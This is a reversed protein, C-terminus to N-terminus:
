QEAGATTAHSPQNGTGSRARKRASRQAGIKVAAANYEFTQPRKM